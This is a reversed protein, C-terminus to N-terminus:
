MKCNFTWTSDKCKVECFLLKISSRWQEGDVQNMSVPQLRYNEEVDNAHRDLSAVVWARYIGVPLYITGCLYVHRPLQAQSKCKFCNTTMKSFAVTLMVGWKTFMGASRSKCFSPQHIAVCRTLNVANTSNRPPADRMMWDVLPLKSTTTRPSFVRHLPTLHEDDSTHRQYQSSSTERSRM